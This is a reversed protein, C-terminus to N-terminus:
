VVRQGLALLRLEAELGDLAELRRGHFEGSAATRGLLEGARAVPDLRAPRPARNPTEEISWTPGPRTARGSWWRTSTSTARGRPSSPSARPSTTPVSRM